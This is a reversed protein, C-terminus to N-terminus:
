NDEVTAEAELMAVGWEALVPIESLLTAKFSFQKGYFKGGVALAHRSALEEAAELSEAEFIHMISNHANMPGPLWAQVLYKEM